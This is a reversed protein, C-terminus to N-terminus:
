VFVYAIAILASVMLVALTFFKLVDKIETALSPKEPKAKESPKRHDELLRTQQSLTKTLESVQQQLMHERNESKGDRENAERRERLREEKEKELQAELTEVKQQLLLANPTNRGTNSQAKASHATITNPTNGKSALVNKVRDPFARQLEVFRIIKNGVEDKEFSISDKGTTKTRRNITSRSKFGLLETAESVTYKEKVEM